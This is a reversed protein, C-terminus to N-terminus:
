YRHNQHVLVISLFCPSLLVVFLTASVIVFKVHQFGGFGFGPGFFDQLADGFLDPFGESMVDRRRQAGGLSLIDGKVVARGLLGNKFVEPDGQVMIGQQAPAVSVKLAPKANAKKVVVSDSVMTKANKRILGDIRIIGEGVDAPYARDVIAVTERGGIISVVDGRSLGLARMLTPDIRAIGKYADDQLAEVVKLRIEDGKTKPADDTKKIGAM